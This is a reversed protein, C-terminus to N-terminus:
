KEISCLNYIFKKNETIDLVIYTHRGGDQRPRSISGPNLFTCDKEERIVPVHTHGYMIIDCGDEMAKKKMEREISESGGGFTHGHAMLIQHGELEFELFNSLSPDMDCNGRVIRLPCEGMAQIHIDDGLADGMHCILAPKTREIAEDMYRRDGHSDSIILVRM